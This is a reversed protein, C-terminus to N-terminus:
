GKTAGSMLGSSLRSQVAVFFIMVPVTIISSAAMVAGWDTGSRTFFTRLGVAATYM